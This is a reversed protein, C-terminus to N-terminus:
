AAKKATLIETLTDNFIEVRSFFNDLINKNEARALPRRCYRKILPLLPVLHNHTIQLAKSVEDIERVTRLGAKKGKAPQKKFKIVKGESAKPLVSTKPVNTGVTARHAKKRLSEAKVEEGFLDSLERSLKEAAARVSMGKNAVYRDLHEKVEHKCM